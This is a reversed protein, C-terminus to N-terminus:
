RFTNDVFTVGHPSSGQSSYFGSGSGSGHLDHQCLRDRHGGAVRLPRRREPRGHHHGHRLHHQPADPGLAHDGPPDRHRPAPPRDRELREPQSRGLPLLPHGYELGGRGDVTLDTSSSTTPAVSPRPSTSPTTPAPGVREDGSTCRERDHHRAPHHPAPRAALEGYGGFVIVGTETPEGNAFVFGQWTQHHAGGRLTIGGFYGAGGGDFTVGGTTEARVIVPRTRDAFRAGIWLSDAQKTAAPSVRYTGNAVVIETVTDDALATLLAPISTVRVSTWTRRWDTTTSRLRGVVSEHYQGPSYPALIGSSGPTRTSTFTSDYRTSASPSLWFVSRMSRSALFLDRLISAVSRDNAFVVGAGAALFGAAYNDARRTATPRTPSAGGPESSGAAYAVRSLIVVAGPALRLSRRVYYEGYHRVNGHGSAATRNLGLGNMTRPDFAAGPSPYGKGHGLYVFLNAGRSAETVRSWTANPSYIERM